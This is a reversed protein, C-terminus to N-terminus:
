SALLGVEVDLRFAAFVLLYYSIAFVAHFVVCGVYYLVILWEATTIESVQPELAVIWAL